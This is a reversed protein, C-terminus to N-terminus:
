ARWPRCLAQCNFFDTEHKPSCMSHFDRMCLTLVRGSRCLCSAIHMHDSQDFTGLGALRHRIQRWQQRNNQREQKAPQQEGHKALVRNLGNLRNKPVRKKTLKREIVPWLQQHLARRQNQNRNTQSHPKACADPVDPGFPLVDDARQSARANPQGKVRPVADNHEREHDDSARNPSPKPSQDRGQQAHPKPCVFDKHGQHQDIHGLLQQRRHGQPQHTIGFPKPKGSRAIQLLIVARM